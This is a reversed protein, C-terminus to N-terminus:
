LVRLTMKFRNFPKPPECSIIAYIKDLQVPDQEIKDLSWSLLQPGIYPNGTFNILYNDMIGTITDSLSMILAPSINSCGVLDDGVRCVRLAISDANAVISEEDKNLNNAVATTLQRMNIPTGEFNNGILWVGNAGLRELISKGLTGSLSFFNYGLNSIPRYSPEYSRMGAPAAALIYNPVEEGNWLVKKVGWVAQARYSTTTDERYDILKLAKTLDDAISAVEGAYFLEDFTPLGYWLTRWVKSEKNNSIELVSALCTQIISKNNTLIAKAQEQAAANGAGEVPVKLMPVISYINSDTNLVDLAEEYKTASEGDTGIFYVINTTETARLAFLLALAMPNDVSIDGFIAEIEDKSGVSGIKNKYEGMKMRYSMSIDYKGSALTATDTKNGILIGASAGIKVATSNTTVGETLVADEEVLFDAKTATTGTIAVTADTVEVTVIDYTDQPFIATVEGVNSTNESGYVIVPDNQKVWRGGFAPSANIGTVHADLQLVVTTSSSTSTIPSGSGVLSVTAGGTAVGTQVNVFRGDKVAVKVAYSSDFTASSDKLLTDNYGPFASVNITSSSGATYELGTYVKAADNVDAQTFRYQQGVIAVGLEPTGTAATEVFEQELEVGPFQFKTIAM